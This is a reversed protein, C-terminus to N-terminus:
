QPSRKGAEGPAATRCSALTRRQDPPRPSWLHRPTTRCTACTRGTRFITHARTTRCTAQVRGPGCVTVGLSVPPGRECHHSPARRPVSRCPFGQRLTDPFWRRGLLPSARSPHPVHRRCIPDSSDDHPHLRQRRCQGAVLAPMEVPRIETGSLRDPALGPEDTLHFRDLHLFTAIATLWVFLLVTLFAIRAHAWIHQRATLVILLFGAAYGGGLFAASMAPQVTWAFFRDTETAGVYLTLTSLLTLALFPGILSRWAGAIPRFPGASAREARMQGAM